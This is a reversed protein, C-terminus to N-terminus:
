PRLTESRGPQMTAVATPVRAGKKRATVASVTGARRNLHGSKHLKADAAIAPSPKAWPDYWTPNMEQQGYAPVLLLMLTCATHLLGNRGPRSAQNM